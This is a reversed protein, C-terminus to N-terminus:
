AVVPRLLEYHNALWGYLRSLRLSGWAGSRSRRFPLPASFRDHSGSGYGVDCHACTGAADNGENLPLAPADDLPAGHSLRLRALTCVLLRELRLNSTDLIPDDQAAPQEQGDSDRDQGDYYRSACASPRLVLLGFVLRGLSRSPVPDVPAQQPM